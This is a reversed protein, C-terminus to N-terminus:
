SADIHKVFKKIRKAVVINMNLTAESISAADKEENTAPVSCNRLSHDGDSAILFSEKSDEITYLKTYEDELVKPVKLKPKANDNEGIIYMRPIELKTDTCISNVTFIADIDVKCDKAVKLCAAGGASHGGVMLLRYQSKQDMEELFQNGLTIDNSKVAYIVASLKVTHMSNVLRRLLENDPMQSSGAFWVIGVPEGDGLVRFCVPEPSGTYSISGEIPMVPATHEMM